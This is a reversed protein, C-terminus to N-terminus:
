IIIVSPPIFKMCASKYKGDLFVVVLAESDILKRATLRIDCFHQVVDEETLSADVNIEFFTSEITSQGFWSLFDSVLKTSYDCSETYHLPPGQFICSRANCARQLMDFLLQSIETTDEMTSESAALLFEKLRELATGSNNNKKHNKNSEELQTLMKDLHRSTSTCAKSHLYSNMLISYMKTLATKSVGTEGEIICPIKCAIREHISLIKMTFDLTLIFSNDDICQLKMSGDESAVLPVQLAQSLFRDLISRQKLDQSTPIFFGPLNLSEYKSRTEADILDPATCILRFEPALKDTFDYILQHHNRGIWSKSQDEHLFREGESVMTEMLSSGLCDNDENYNFEKNEDLVKVRRYLFNTWFYQRLMDDNAVFKPLFRRMLGRCESDTLEGDLEFTDSVKIKSAVKRFASNMASVEGSTPIFFGKTHGPRFKNCLDRMQQHLQFDLNVGIVIIHVNNPSHRLRDRVLTFSDTSEGDTLCIIWTECDFGTGDISDLGASLATYMNTGGWHGNRAKSIDTRLNQKQRENSIQQLPVRIHFRSDFTILGIM